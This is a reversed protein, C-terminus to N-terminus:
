RVRFGATDQGDKSMVQQTRRMEYVEALTYERAPIQFNVLSQAREYPLEGIDIHALCRGPRTIARSIKGMDAGFSLVFITDALLSLLGDSCNLLTSTVDIHQTVNDETLYDGVDELVILSRKFRETVKNLLRAEGLFDSPPSCVVARRNTESILMRILYSKGTGPPGSIVVLGHTADKLTVNLLKRVKEVVEPAYNQVHDNFLMRPCRVSSVSVSRDEDPAAFSVEVETPKITTGRPVFGREELLALLRKPTEQDVSYLLVRLGTVEGDGPEDPDGVEWHRRLGIKLVWGDGFAVRERMVGDSFQRAESTVPLALLARDVFELANVTSLRDVPELVYHHQNVRGFHRRLLEEHYMAFQPDEVDPQMPFGMRQSFNDHERTIM